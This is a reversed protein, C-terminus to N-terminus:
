IEIKDVKNLIELFQACRKMQNQITRRNNDVYLASDNTFVIKSQNYEAQHVAFIAQYSLWINFESKLGYLPFLIAQSRESILIAPKQTCKTIHQFSKKRGEFTSGNELCWENIIDTAKADRVISTGDEYVLQTIKDSVQELYLIKNM